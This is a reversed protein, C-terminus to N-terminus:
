GIRKKYIGKEIVFLKREKGNERNRGLARVKMATKNLINIAKPKKTTRIISPKTLFFCVLAIKTKRTM